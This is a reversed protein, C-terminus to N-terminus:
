SILNSPDSILEVTLFTLQSTSFGLDSIEDGQARRRSEPTM